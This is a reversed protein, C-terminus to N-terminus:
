LGAIMKRIEIVTQNKRKTYKVLIGLMIQLLIGVFECSTYKM